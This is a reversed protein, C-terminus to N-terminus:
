WCYQPQPAKNYFDNNSLLGQPFNNFNNCYNQNTNPSIPIINRFSSQPRIPINRFSSQPPKPIINRCINQNQPPPIHITFSNQNQNVSLNYSCNVSQIPNNIPCLSNTQYTRCYQGTGNGQIIGRMKSYIILIFM